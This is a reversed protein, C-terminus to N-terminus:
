NFFILIPNLEKLNKIGWFQILFFFFFWQAWGGYGNEESCLVLCAGGM